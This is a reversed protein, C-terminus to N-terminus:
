KEIEAQYRRILRSIIEAMPIKQKRKQRWLFDRQENSITVQLKFGEEM